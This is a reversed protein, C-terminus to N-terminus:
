WIMLGVADNLTWALNYLEKNKWVHLLLKFNGPTTIHLYFFFSLFIGTFFIINERFVAQTMWVESQSLLSYKVPTM